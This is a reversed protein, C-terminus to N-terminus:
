KQFHTRQRWRLFLAAALLVANRVLPRVSKTVPWANSGFCGCDLDFGRPRAQVLVVTFVVTMLVAALSVLVLGGITLGDRVTIAWGGQNM